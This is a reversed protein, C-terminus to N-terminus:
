QVTSGGTGPGDVDDPKSGGKAQASASSGRAARAKTKRTRRSQAPTAQTGSTSAPVARPTSTTATYPNVPLAVRPHWARWVSALNSQWLALEHRYYDLERQALIMIQDICVRYQEETLGKHRAPRLHNELIRVAGFTTRSPSTEPPVQWHQNAKAHWDAQAQLLCPSVTSYKSNSSTSSLM